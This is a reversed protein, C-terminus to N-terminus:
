DWCAGWVGCRVGCRWRGWACLWGGAQDTYNLLVTFEGPLPVAPLALGLTLNAPAGAALPTAASCTSAGGNWSLSNIDLTGFGLPLAVKQAHRARAPPSPPRSTSALARARASM